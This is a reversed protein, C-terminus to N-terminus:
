SFLLKSVADSFQEFSSSFMSDFSCNVEIAGYRIIFGGNIKVPTESVILKGKSCESLNSFFDAPLRKIDNSSFCIEGEYPESYKAIMKYILVFYQEDPLECLYNQASELASSIIERKAALMVSHRKLEASSQARILIDEKVKQSKTSGENKIENARRQANEIIDDCKIDSKNKIDECVIYTDSQIQALIKDLGTM